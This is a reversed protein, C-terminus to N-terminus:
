NNFPLQKQLYMRFQNPTHAKSEDIVKVPMKPAYFGYKGSNGTIEQLARALLPENENGLVGLNELDEELAITPPLGNTYDSFGAANENRGVLPQLGWTHSSNVQNLREENYLYSNEPDDLLTISFENKGRTTEGIQVVDIYPTLGNIVLESASATSGTTLIYVKQLGLSNITTGNSLEDTFYDNLFADSLQAQIKDNWRQRIFLQGTFQGTIMSALQVSSRVSGGPNYRLDLILDTVGQNKFQGFVNNLDEDFNSTFGNYVLYGIKRGSDEIVKSLYVPNETLETKTLTVEQGNPTVTNNSITAMNLTYTDNEGFLLEQYNTLTLTTGNVGIFIDGRNINKTAADSNPVIYRVYGLVKDTDYIVLGFEVGNSKFVGQQANLLDNYNAAIFSFRDDSVILENYFFAEIDTFQELYSVYEQNSAFRDDALNASEAQWFYWLNMSKWVFDQVQVQPNIVVANDDQDSCSIFAIVFLLYIYTKKM